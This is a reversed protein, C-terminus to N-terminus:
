VRGPAPLQTLENRLVEELQRISRYVLCRQGKVDFKLEGPDKVLLVAPVNRGWAYGVELYVNANGGTLDAIVLDASAIRDRVWSVVDGTFAALDARECLYGAANVAGQIGYHFVDDFEAAFPMAVFARPKERSRTGARELSSQRLALERASGGTSAAPLLAALIEGYRNARRPDREIISVHRIGSGPLQELLGALLATFCEAEDLGFGPGHVTLAISGGTALHAAAFRVARVGFDRVDAYDFEELRRTGLFLVQGAAVGPPAGFVRHAGPAPLDIPFPAFRFAVAKDLGYLSQAYKLVLLDTAVTMADVQDVTIEIGSPAFPM